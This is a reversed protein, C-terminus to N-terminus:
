LAREDPPAFLAAVDQGYLLEAMHRILADTYRRQGGPLRPVPLGHRAELRRLTAPSVALRRAAEHIDVVLPNTM